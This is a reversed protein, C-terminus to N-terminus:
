TESVVSERGIFGEARYFLLNFFLITWEVCKRLASMLHWTHALGCPHLPSCIVSGGASTCDVPPCICMERWPFPSCLFSAFWLRPPVAERRRPFRLTCCAWLAPATKPPSCPFSCPRVAGWRHPREAKFCCSAAPTLTFPGSSQFMHREYSVAWGVAVPFM